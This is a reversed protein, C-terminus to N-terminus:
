VKVVGRPKGFLQKEEEPIASAKGEIEDGSPADFGPQTKAVRGKETQHKWGEGGLHTLKKPLLRFKAGKTKTTKKSKWRMEKRRKWAWTIGGVATYCGTTEGKKGV